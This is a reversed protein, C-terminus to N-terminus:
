LKESPTDKKENYISMCAVFRDGQIPYRKKMNADLICRTMFQDGSEQATPTPYRKDENTLFNNKKKKEPMKQNNKQSCKNTSLYRMAQDILDYAQAINNKCGELESDDKVM